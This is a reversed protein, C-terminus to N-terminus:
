VPKDRRQMEWIIEWIQCNEEKGDRVSVSVHYLDDGRSVEGFNRGQFFLPWRPHLGAHERRTSIRRPGMETRELDGYVTDYGNGLWMSTMAWCTPRESSTTWSAILQELFEGRHVPCCPLARQFM